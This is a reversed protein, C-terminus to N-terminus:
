TPTALSLKESASLDKLFSITEGIIPFGFQGPPLPLSM